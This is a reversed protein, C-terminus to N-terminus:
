ADVVLLDTANDYVLIAPLLRASSNVLLHTPARAFVATVTLSEFYGWADISNHEYWYVWGTADGVHLSSDLIWAGGSEVGDYHATYTTTTPQAEADSKRTIVAVVNFGTCTYGQAPTATYVYQQSESTYGAWPLPTVAGGQATITGGGAPSAVVVPVALDGRAM